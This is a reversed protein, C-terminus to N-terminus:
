TLVGILFLIFARESQAFPRSNKLWLTENSIQLFVLLTTNTVRQLGLTTETYATRM